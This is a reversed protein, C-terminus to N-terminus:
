ISWHRYPLSTIGDSLIRRKTDIPCLAAKESEVMSLVHDKSRIGVNKTHFVGKGFLLILPVAETRMALDKAEQESLSSKDILNDLLSGELTPMYSDTAMEGMGNKSVGKHKPKTTKDAVTPDDNLNFLDSREAM